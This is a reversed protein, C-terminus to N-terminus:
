AGGIGMVESLRPWAQRIQLATRCPVCTTETGKIRVAERRHIGYGAVTGCAGTWEPIALPDDICDDDWCSSPAYGHQLASAKARVVNYPTVGVDLPDVYRYKEYAEKVVRVTQFSVFKASDAGIIVRGIHAKPKGTVQAIFGLGFGQKYLAQLRRRTGTPDMRAGSFFGRTSGRKSPETPPEEFTIAMVKLWTERRMTQPIHGNSRQRRIMQSITSSSLGSQEAMTTSPMGRSHFDKVKRFALESEEPSMTCARGLYKLKARRRQETRRKECWSCFCGAETTPRGRKSIKM